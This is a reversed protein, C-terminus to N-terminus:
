SVKVLALPLTSWGSPAPIISNYTEQFEYFLSLYGLEYSLIFHANGTFALTVGSVKASNGVAYSQEFQQRTSTINLNLNNFQKTDFVGVWDVMQSMAQGYGPIFQIDIAMQISKIVNDQIVISGMPIDYEPHGEWMSWTIQYTGSMNVIYKAIFATNTNIAIGGVNVINEGDLTWGMFYYGAKIPASPTNAYGGEQISQTAHTAGNATFTVSLMKPAFVAYFTINSTINYTALNVLNVGDLSWGSFTYGYRTPSSPAAAYGNQYVVQQSHVAGQSSFVVNYSNGVVGYFTTTHTIPYAALDIITNGDVSWGLFTKYQTNTPPTISASNGHAVIQNGYQAGDYIFNVDYKNIVKAIFITNATMTFNSLTIINEGDVTWGLFEFYATNTPTSVSVTAGIDVVQVNYTANNIMFTAIARQNSQFASLLATYYDIDSQLQVIQNNLMSITNANQSITALLTNVQSQLSIVQAGLSNILNQNATQNTQYEAITGNLNAITTQLGSITQLHNNNTTTLSTIQMNFMGIQDNLNTITDRYSDILATYESKDGLANDYGDRYANDLDTSDYINTGSTAQKVKDFNVITWITCFAVGAFLIISVTWILIQKTM